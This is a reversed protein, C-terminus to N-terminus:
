TTCRIIATGISTTSTGNPLHACRSYRGSARYRVATWARAEARREAGTAAGARCVQRLLCRHRARRGDAFDGDWARNYETQAVGHPAVVAHTERDRLGHPLGQDAGRERGHLDRRGSAGAELDDVEQVPTRSRDNDVAQINGMRSWAAHPTEGEVSDLASRPEHIRM